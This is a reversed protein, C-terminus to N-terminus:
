SSQVVSGLVRGALLVTVRTTLARPFNPFVGSSSLPRERERERERERRRKGERGGGERERGRQGERERERGGERERGREGERERERGREGEGERERGRDGEREREGWKGMKGEGVEREKREEESGRRICTRVTYM